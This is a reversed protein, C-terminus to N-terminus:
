QGHTEGPDSRHTELLALDALDKPRGYSAKFGALTGLDVLPVGSVMEAHEILWPTSRQFAETNVDLYAELRGQRLGPKGNPRQKRRWGSRELAAFLSPTVVLDIDDTERIDRVAMAAGGVIVYANVPLNLRRIEDLIEHRNMQTATMTHFQYVM